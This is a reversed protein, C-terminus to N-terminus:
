EHVKLIKYEINNIQSALLSFSSNYSGYIKHTKALCFFDVVADKIAQPNSRTYQKEITLIKKEFQETIQKETERDDTTLFFNLEPDTKLDTMIQDIFLKVPSNKIAIDHDTRRIHIGITKDNYQKCNSEIRSLLDHTPSFLKLSDNCNGFWECTFFYLSKTTLDLIKLDDKRERIAKIDDDEFILFDKGSISRVLKRAAQKVVNERKVYRFSRYWIKKNIIELNQIPEFLEEFPCNLEPGLNWIMKVERQTIEGLWLCSAIVRMRNALGGHPEVVIKNIM